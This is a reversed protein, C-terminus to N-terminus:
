SLYEIIELIENLNGENNYDHIYPLANEQLANFSPFIINGSPSIQKIPFYQMKAKTFVLMYYPKDRDLKFVRINSAIRGLYRFGLPAMSLFAKGRSFIINKAANKGYVTSYQNSSIFSNAVINLVPTLFHKNWTITNVGFDITGFNTSHFPLVDKIFMRLSNILLRGSCINDIQNNINNIFRHTALLPFAPVSAINHYDAHIPAAVYWANNATHAM